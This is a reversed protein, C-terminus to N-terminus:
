IINLVSDMGTAEFVQRCFDSPNQVAMTGGTATMLKHAMLVVRLGASSIYEVDKMDLFLAKIGKTCDKLKGELEP